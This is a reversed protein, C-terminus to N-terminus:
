CYFMYPPSPMDLLFGDPRGVVLLPFLWGPPVLIVIGRTGMTIVLGSISFVRPWSRLWLKYSFWLMTAILMSVKCCGFARCPTVLISLRLYLYPNILEEWYSTWCYCIVLPLLPEDPWAERWMFLSDSLGWLCRFIISYFDVLLDPLLLM